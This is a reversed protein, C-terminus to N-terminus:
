SIGALINFILNKWEDGIEGGSQSGEGDSNKDRNKDNHKVADCCALMNDVDSPCCNGTLGLSNCELM